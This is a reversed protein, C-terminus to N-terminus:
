ADIFGSNDKDFAKFADECRAQEEETLIDQDLSNEHIQIRNTM